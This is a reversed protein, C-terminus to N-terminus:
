TTSRWGAGGLRDVAGRKAAARWTSSTAHGNAASGAPSASGRRRHSLLAAALLVEDGDEPREPEFLDTRNELFRTYIAGSAFAEDAVLRRLFPLTTKVGLLEYEGLARQLRALAMPRDIGWAIIKSLMSDYYPGVELGPFLSSDIRVGPGSPENVLSVHGLSPLFGQDADEATL